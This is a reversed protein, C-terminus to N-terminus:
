IGARSKAETWLDTWKDTIPSFEYQTTSEIIEPAADFGNEDFMLAQQQEDSFQGFSETNVPPSKSSPEWSITYQGKKKIVERQYKVALERNSPNKVICLGETWQMGGEEPIVVDVWDNGAARLDSMAFNGVPAMVIDEQLLAQRLASTGSYVAKMNSFMSILKDKIDALQEDTQEFPPYGLTMAIKPINWTPWDMIGIQNKYQGDPGGTWLVEYSSRHEEPVKNANVTMTDWGWRTPLAYMKGDRSFASVPWQFHEMFSKAEPYDSQKLPEVTGAQAHRQAWTNNLTILDFKDVGGSKLINFGEPDSSLLKINVTADHEAEFDQMISEAGYGEWTLVNLTRSDSNGSSATGGEQGGDEGGSEGGVDRQGGCGALAVTGAAGAATIFQRRTRGSTGDSDSSSPNSNMSM